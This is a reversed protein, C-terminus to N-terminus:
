RRHRHAGGAGTGSSCPRGITEELSAIQQSIAPQTLGLNRAATTFSRQRYVEVFARLRNLSM